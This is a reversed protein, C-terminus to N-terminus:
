KNTPLSKPPKTIKVENVIKLVKMILDIPRLSILTFDRNITKLVENQMEIQGNRFGVAYVKDLIEKTEKKM